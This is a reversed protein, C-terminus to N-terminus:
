LYGERVPLSMFQGTESLEPIINPSSGLRPPQEQILPVPLKKEMDKNATLIRYLFSIASSELFPAKSTSLYLGLPWM